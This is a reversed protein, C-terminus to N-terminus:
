RVVRGMWGNLDRETRLVTMSQGCSGVALVYDGDPADFMLAGWLEKSRPKIEGVLQLAVVVRTGVAMKQFAGGCSTGALENWVRVRAPASGKASRLVDIQLSSPDDMILRKEAPAAGVSVIRGVLVVPAQRTVTTFDTFGGCTCASAPRVVAILMGLALLLGCKSMQCM